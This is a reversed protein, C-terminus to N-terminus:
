YLERKDLRNCLPEGQLYRRLNECFVDVLRESSLGPVLATSHPSIIVNDFDWLPSDQPLPESEFVDLAAGSLHGNRLAEALATEDVVQGRGVNIFYAGPKMAEIASSDILHATAPTNPLTSVVYDSQGLAKEFNELACIQTVSNPEAVMDPIRRKVGLIRLGFPAAREAIERGISGLGLICLTKGMLTDAPLDRWLRKERDRQLRMYEKVHALITMLAFEALFPSFVGSATTVIVGADRLDTGNMLEGVGASTAQIWRLNPALKSLCDLYQLDLDYLVETKSLMALWHAEEESTRSDSYHQAGDIRHSAFSAVQGPDYLNRLRNQPLRVLMPEYLVRVREDVDRIREVHAEELFSTIMVNVM